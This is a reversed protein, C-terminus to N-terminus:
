CSISAVVRPSFVRMTDRCKSPSLLGRILAAFKEPTVGAAAAAKVFKESFEGHM